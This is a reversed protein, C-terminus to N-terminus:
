PGRGVSVRMGRELSAALEDALWIGRPTPAIREPAVTILGASRQRELAPGYLDVPDRGFRAAFDPRSVGDATRLGLFMQEFRAAAPPVNEWSTQEGALYAATAANVGRRNAADDPIMSHAHPGLGLYPACRWYALNHRARRGPRAFNSVEIQALGRRELLARGADLLDALLDEEAVRWGRDQYLSCGHGLSLAYTSVHDPRLALLDRLQALHQETTQGPFGLMLDCSINDFGQARAETVTRRATAADHRRGLTTLLRDDLVQVGVSLRNVGQERLRRLRAPSLDGPNLELTVEVGGPRLPFRSLAARIVQGVAEPRWLSPTGGGLYITGLPASGVEGARRELEAIIARTFRRQPIRATAVTPFDCYGCRSRCFPFHIYIGFPIM